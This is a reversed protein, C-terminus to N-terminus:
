EGWVKSAYVNVSASYRGYTYLAVYYSDNLDTVNVSYTGTGSINVVAAPSSVNKGSMVAFHATPVTGDANTKSFNTVTIKVTDFNALDIKKVTGLVSHQWVGTLPGTISLTDGAEGKSSSSIGSSSTWGSSTWGGTIGECPDGDNFLYYIWEVWAGGQYTKATKGTWAGSVYQKCGTPYITVNNKKLTNFPATASSSTQVWVMGEVPSAPQEASFVWESIDTDTNVWITNETHSSPQTTGGVVKFNLEAGVNQTVNMGAAVWDTGNFVKLGNPSYSLGNFAKIVGM